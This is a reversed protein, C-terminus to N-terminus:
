DALAGILVGALLGVLGAISLELGVRTPALGVSRTFFITLGTM